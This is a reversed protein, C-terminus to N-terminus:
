RRRRGQRSPPPPRQQRLTPPLSSTVTPTPSAEGCRPLTPCVQVICCPAKESMLSVFFCVKDGPKVNSINTTVTTSQGSQLPTPLNTLQPTLTFTSGQVPTLLIQSMPKGSNNTVTFTYSYGGSPLCRADGTIQACAPTATPTPTPTPTPTVPNEIVRVCAQATSLTDEGEFYTNAPFPDITAKDDKNCYNDTDTPANATITITVTAGHALNPSLHATVVLGSSNISSCGSTCQGQVNTFGTPLTDTFVVNSIPDNGENTLTLTFTVPGGPYVSTTATKNVYVSVCYPLQNVVDQYWQPAPSTMTPPQSYDWPLLNMFARNTVHPTGAGQCLSDTTPPQRLTVNLTCDIYGGPQFTTGSFDLLQVGNGVSSNYTVTWGNHGGSSAPVPAVNSFTCTYSYDIPVNGYSSSDEAMTDLVTGPTITQTTSTNEFRLKYTLVQPYSSFSTVPPTETKTVKLGCIPLTPMADTTTIGGASQGNLGLGAYNTISGATSIEACPADYQVLYDITVTTSSTYPGLTGFTIGFLYTYSYLGAVLPSTTAPTISSCASAPSCTVNSAAFTATFPPTGNGNVFDSLSLGTVTTNAPITFTIEYKLPLGWAPTSKLQKTIPIVLPAPCPTSAASPLATLTTALASSPSTDDAGNTDSITTGAASYKIRAINDLEYTQTRYCTASTNITVDFTIVFSGGGAPLFGNSATPYNFALNASNSPYLTTTTTSAAPMCDAGGSSTCPHYLITLDLAVGNSSPASLTDTVTLLPGLYLDTSGDAQAATNNTVTLRYTITSGFPVSTATQVFGGSGTPAQVEKTISIDVPPTTQTVAINLNHIVDTSKPTVDFSAPYTGTKTFYGDIVVIVKDCTSSNCNLTISLSSLSSATLGTIATPAGGAAPFTVAQVKTVTFVGAPPIINLTAAPNTNTPTTTIGHVIQVPEGPWLQINLPCNSSIDYSSPISTITSPSRGCQLIENRTWTDARAQPVAAIISLAVLVFLISTRGARQM